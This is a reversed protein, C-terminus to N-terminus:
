EKQILSESEKIAKNAAKQSSQCPLLAQGILVLNTDYIWGKNVSWPEAEATKQLAYIHKGIATINTVTVDARVRFPYEASFSRKETTVWPCVFLEGHADAPMSPLAKASLLARFFCGAECVLQAHEVGEAPDVQKLAEVFGNWDNTGEPISNDSRVSVSTCATFCLLPTILLLTFLTKM